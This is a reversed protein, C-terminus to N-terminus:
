PNVVTIQATLAYQCPPSKALAEYSGIAQAFTLDVISTATGTAAQVGSSSTFTQDSILNTPLGADLADRSSSVKLATALPTTSTCLGSGSVLDAPVMFGRNSTKPDSVTLTWPLVSTVTAKVLASSTAGPRLTMAGPATLTIGLAGAPGAAALLGITALVPISFRHLMSSPLDPCPFPGSSGPGGWAM